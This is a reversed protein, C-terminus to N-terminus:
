AFSEKTALTPGGCPPALRRLQELGGEGLLYGLERPFQEFLHGQPVHTEEFCWRLGDPDVTVVGDRLGLPYLWCYFPKLAWDGHGHERGFRELACRGDAGYFVCYAKDAGPGAPALPLVRTKFLASRPERDDDWGGEYDFWEAPRWPQRLYAAVGEAHAYARDVERGSLNAGNDCCHGRCGGSCGNRLTTPELLRWDVRWGGVSVTQGPTM